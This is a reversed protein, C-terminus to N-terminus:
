KKEKNKLKKREEHLERAIKEVEKAKENIQKSLGESMVNVKGKIEVQLKEIELQLAKTEETWIEAHAQHNKHINKSLTKMEERMQKVEPDNMIESHAEHIGEMEIEMKKHVDQM